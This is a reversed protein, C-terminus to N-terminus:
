RRGRTTGRSEERVELTVLNTKLPSIDARRKTEANVRACRDRSERPWRSVPPHSARDSAAPNGPFERETDYRSISIDLSARCRAVVEFPHIEDATSVRRTEAAANEKERPFVPFIRLTTRLSKLGNPSSQVSRTRAEGALRCQQELHRYIHAFRQSM